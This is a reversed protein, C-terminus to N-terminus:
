KPEVLLSVRSEPPFIAKMAARLDAPKLARVRARLDEHSGYPLGLSERHAMRVAVRAAYQSSLAAHGLWSGRADEVLSEPLGKEIAEDLIGALVAEVEEANESSTGVYLGLAGAHGFINYFAGAQYATSRVDTFEHFVRWGLALQLLAAEPHLPDRISPAPAGLIVYHRGSPHPVRHRGPSSAGVPPPAPAHAPAASGAGLCEAATKRAHRPAVAGVIAIVARDLRFRERFFRVVDERTVRRLSEPTGHLEHAYRSEGFVRSRFATGSFQTVDAVSATANRLLRGRAEEIAAETFAPRAFMEGVISLAEAFNERPVTITFRADDRDTHESYSNGMAFLRWRLEFGSRGKTALPVARLCLAALGEKGPPDRRSGADFVLAISVIPVANRELHILTAGNELEVRTADTDRPTVQGSAGAKEKERHIREIEGVASFRGASTASRFARTPPPAPADPPLLFLCRVNEPRLYARIVRLVDARTIREYRDDAGLADPVGEDSYFGAIASRGIVRGLPGFDEGLLIQRSHFNEATEGIGGLRSGIGNLDRFMRLLVERARGAEEPSRLAVRFRLLNRENLQRYFVDATLAVRERVVLTESLWGSLIEKLFRTSIYDPHLYGPLAVTALLLPDAGERRLVEEQYRGFEAPPAPPPPPPEGEGKWEGFWRRVLALGDDRRFDGVLVVVTRDPRYHRRYFGYLADRSIGTVTRSTGSVLAGYPHPSFAMGALEDFAYIEPSANRMAIEDLVIRREEEVEGPRFAASTISDSLIDLALEMHESPLLVGCETFDHHTFARIRGGVRWAERDTNGKARRGTARFLMHEIFHSAGALEPPEDVRGVKVYVGVHVAPASALPELLVTLGNELVVREAASAASPLFLLLVAPLISLRKMYSNYRRGPVSGSLRPACVNIM